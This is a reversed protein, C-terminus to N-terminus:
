RALINLLKFEFLSNVVSELDANCFNNPQGGERGIPALLACKTVSLRTKSLNIWGSLLASVLDQIEGLCYESSSKLFLDCSSNAFVELLSILLFDCFRKTFRFSSVAGFLISWFQLQAVVFVVFLSFITM